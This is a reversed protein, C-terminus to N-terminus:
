WTYCQFFRVFFTYVIQRSALLVFVNYAIPSGLKFIEGYVPLLHSTNSFVTPPIPPTTFTITRWACRMYIRVAHGGGRLACYPGMSHRVIVMVRARGSRQLPSRRGEEAVVVVTVAGLRALSDTITSRPSPATGDDTQKSERSQRSCVIGIQAHCIASQLRREQRRNTKYRGEVLVRTCGVTDPVTEIVDGGGKERAV